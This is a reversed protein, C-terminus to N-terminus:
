YVFIVEFATPNGDTNYHNRHYLINPFSNEFIWSIFVNMKFFDKHKNNLIEQGTLLDRGRLIWYYWSVVHSLYTFEWTRIYDLACYLGQYYRVM